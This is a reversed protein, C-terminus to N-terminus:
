GLGLYVYGDTFTEEVMPWLKALPISVIYTNAGVAQYKLEGWKYLQQNTLPNSLAM